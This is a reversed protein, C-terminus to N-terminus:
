EAGAKGRAKNIAARAQARTSTGVDIGNELCYVIRVLADNLDPAAAILHANAEWPLKENGNPAQYFVQALTTPFVPDHYEQIRASMDGRIIRWPGPTFTNDNETM